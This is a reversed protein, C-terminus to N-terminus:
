QTVTIPQAFLTSRLLWILFFNFRLKRIFSESNSYLKGINEAFRFFAYVSFDCFMQLSQKIKVIALKLMGGSAHLLLLLGIAPIDLILILFRVSFEYEVYEVMMTVLNCTTRFTDFDNRWSHHVSARLETVVEGAVRRRLNPPYQRVFADVVRVTITCYKCQGCPYSFSFEGQCHPGQWRRATDVRWREWCFNATLMRIM